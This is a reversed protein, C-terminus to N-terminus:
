PVTNLSISPSEIVFAISRPNFISHHQARKHLAGKQPVPIVVDPKMRSPKPKGTVM